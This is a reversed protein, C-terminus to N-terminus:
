QRGERRRTEYASTFLVVGAAHAREIKRQQAAVLTKRARRQPGMLGVVAEVCLQRETVLPEVARRGGRQLEAMERREVGLRNRSGTLARLGIEVVLAIQEAVIPQFDIMTKWASQQREFVIQSGFGEGGVVNLSLHGGFQLVNGDPGAGNAGLSASPLTGTFTSPM